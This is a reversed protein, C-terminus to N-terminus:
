RREAEEGAGNSIDRSLSKMAQLVRKRPGLPLGLERLNAETIAPLDPITVENEVFVDVYKGLDLDILWQKIDDAM